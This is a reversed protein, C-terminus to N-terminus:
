AENMNSGSFEYHMRRNRRPPANGARYCFRPSRARMNRLSIRRGATATPSAEDAPADSDGSQNRACFYLCGRLAFYLKSLVTVSVDIEVAIAVPHDDIGDRAFDDGNLRWAEVACRSRYRSRSALVLALIRRGPPCPAISSIDRGSGRGLVITQASSNQLRVIRM